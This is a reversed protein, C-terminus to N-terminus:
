AGASASQVGSVIQGSFGIGGTPSPTAPPVPVIPSGPAASLAHISGVVLDGVCAIKRGGPTSGLRVDPSKVNIVGDSEIDIPAGGTKLVKILIRGNKKLHIECVPDGEDSRGYLRREGGEATGANKGDSFGVAQEIGQGTGEQLAVSDGPLPLADDGPGQYLEATVTAGGGPDCQVDVVQVGDEDHREVATVIGTRGMM